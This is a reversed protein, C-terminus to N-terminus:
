TSYYNKKNIYSKLCDFFQMDGKCVYVMGFHALLTIPLIQWFHFNFLFFAAVLGNFTLASKPVGLLLSPETLGRSFALEYWTAISSEENNTAM